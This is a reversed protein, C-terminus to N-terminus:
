AKRWGTHGEALEEEVVRGCSENEDSKAEEDVGRDGVVM